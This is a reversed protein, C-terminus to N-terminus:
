AFPSPSLGHTYIFRGACKILFVIKMWTTFGGIDIIGVEDVPDQNCNGDDFAGDDLQLYTSDVFMCKLGGHHTGYYTGCYEIINKTTVDICMLLTVIQHKCFNGQFAWECTCSAYKTFPARIKYTVHSPTPKM